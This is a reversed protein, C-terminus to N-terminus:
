AGNQCGQVTLSGRGPDGNAFDRKTKDVLGCPYSFTSFVSALTLIYPVEKLPWAKPVGPPLQPSQACDHPEKLCSLARNLITTAGPPLQSSQPCDHPEQLCSPTRNLTQPSSSAAPLESSAEGLKNEESDEIKKKCTKNFHVPPNKKFVPHISFYTIM